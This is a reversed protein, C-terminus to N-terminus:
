SSFSGLAALVTMFREPAVDQRLIYWAAISAVLMVGFLGLSEIVPSSIARVQRIKMEQSYVARNLRAFRRREYGEGHHVKVVRIGGLSENLMAIMRGRQGMLQRSARRIRKGFKRMLIAIVPAGVLAILTLRWDLILAVTVGVAGNLLKAVAGGLISAIGRCMTSVDHTIRSMFDAYGRILLYELRAQILRAFARGRWYVATRAVVTLTALEHVYRGTSGIVTLCSVVAMVTVFALFPDTPVHQSLWRGAERVVTPRDPADLHRSILEHLPQKQGLLLQLTPLLMGLGGGFCVASVIAGTGALVLQRKYRLVVTGAQWFPNRQLAM